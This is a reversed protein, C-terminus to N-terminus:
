KRQFFFYIFFFLINDAVIKSQVKVKTRSFGSVGQRQLCHPDLDTPKQLLLSIQVQGTQGKFHSNTDVVKILYDSQSFIIFPRPM